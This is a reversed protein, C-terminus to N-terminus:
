KTIEKDHNESITEESPIVGVSGATDSLPMYSLCHVSIVPLHLEYLSNLVGHLAAQDSLEGQLTTVPLTSERITLCTAMGGMLDSWNPDVRGQVRIQYTAPRDFPIAKRRPTSMKFQHYVIKERIFV